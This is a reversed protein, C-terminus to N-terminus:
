GAGALLRSAFASEQEYSGRIEQAILKEIQTGIMEIPFTIRVEVETRRDCRDPTDGPSYHSTGVIYVRDALKPPIIHWTSQRRVADFTEELEYFFREMGIVRAIPAPLRSASVVRYRRFPIGERLGGELFVHEDRSGVAYADLFARSAILELVRDPSHQFSYRLEFRM